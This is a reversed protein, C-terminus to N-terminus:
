SLRVLVLENVPINIMSYFLHGTATAPVIALSAAHDKPVIFAFVSKNQLHKDVCHDIGVLVKTM